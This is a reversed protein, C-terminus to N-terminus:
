VPKRENIPNVSNRVESNLCIVEVEVHLLNVYLYEHSKSRDIYMVPRENMLTLYCVNAYKLYTGLILVDYNRGYM